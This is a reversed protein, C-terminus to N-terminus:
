NRLSLKAVNSVGEKWKRRKLHVGALFVLNLFGKVLELINILENVSWSHLNANFCIFIIAVIIAQVVDGNFIYELNIKNM